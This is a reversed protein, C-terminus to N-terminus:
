SRGPAARREQRERADRVDLDRALDSPSNSATMTSSHLSRARVPTAPSSRYKMMLMSWWGPLAIYPATLQNSPPAAAHPSITNSTM